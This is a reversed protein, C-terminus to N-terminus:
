DAGFLSQEDLWEDARRNTLQPDASLMNIRGPINGHFPDYCSCPFNAPAVAVRCIQERTVCFSGAAGAQSAPGAAPEIAMTAAPAHPGPRMKYQWAYGLAIILGLGLLAIFGYNRPMIDM